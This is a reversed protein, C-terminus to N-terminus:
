SVSSIDPILLAIYSNGHESKELDFVHLNDIRGQGTFGGHVLLRGKFYVMRSGTTGQPADRPPSTPRLERCQLKSPNIEFVTNIRTSENWGGFCYANEGDTTVAMSWLHSPLYGQLVLSEEWKGSYTDFTDIETTEIADKGGDGGWLFHKSGIGFAAHRERPKPQQSDSSM